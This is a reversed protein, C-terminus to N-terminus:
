DVSFGDSGSRLSGADAASKADVVAQAEAAKQANDAVVSQVSNAETISGLQIAQKTAQSAAKSGGFGFITKLVDWAVSLATAILQGM